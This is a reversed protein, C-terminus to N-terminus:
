HDLRILTIKLVLHVLVTKVVLFCIVSLKKIFLLKFLVHQQKVPCGYVPETAFMSILEVSKILICASVYHGRQDM